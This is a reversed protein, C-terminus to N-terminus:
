EKEPEEDIRRKKMRKIVDELTENFCDAISKMFEDNEVEKEHEEETVKTYKITKFAPQKMISEQHNNIEINLFLTELM